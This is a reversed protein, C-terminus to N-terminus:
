RVKDLRKLAQPWIVALGLGLLAAVASAFFTQRPGFVAWMQGAVLAGVAGGLAYSVSSYIAQGRAALRGPFLQQVVAIATAHYTGWTFIHLAQAFFQLWLLEPFLAILVFRLATMVFSLVWVGYYSFRQFVRKLGLLVAIEAVVAFSMLLGVVTKSYGNEVFYIGYFVFMAGQSLANFFCSGLFALVMPQKLVSWIGDHSAHHAPPPQDHVTMASLVTIAMLVITIPVLWSISVYDFLAGAAAVTAIYGLSGWLRVRGYLGLDFQAPLSPSSPRTLYSVVTAEFLPMLASWFGSMVLLILLVTTFERGWLLGLTVVTAAAFTYRGIPMRQHTRDAIWGWLTPTFIRVIQTSAMLTAIQPATFGLSKLYLGLYTMFVGIAGFFAAYLAGMQVLPIKQNLGASHQDRQSSM